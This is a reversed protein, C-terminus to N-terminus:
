DLQRHEKQGSDVKQLCHTHNVANKRQYKEHKLYELMVDQIKNLSGFLLVHGQLKTMQNGGHYKVIIEPELFIM